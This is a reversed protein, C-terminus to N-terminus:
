SRSLVLIWPSIRRVEAGHASAIAQLAAAPDELNYVGTVREGGLEANEIIIWGNFWPRIDDVVDTVTRRIAIAEGNSWAAIQEPPQRKREVPGTAPIIIQEGAAADQAVGHAADEIRVRGRMVSVETFGDSHRVEFATGLVTVTADGAAVQFIRAPDHAVDFFAAGAHLTVNRTETDVHTSVASRPALRVTSGDPLEVLRLEAVGTVADANLRLILAPGFAAALALALAGTAIYTLPRRPRFRWISVANDRQSPAPAIDGLAAWAAQMERWSSANRPAAHLWADFRARLRADDPSEQLAVFWEAATAPTHDTRSSGDTAM